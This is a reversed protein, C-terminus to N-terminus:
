MNGTSSTEGTVRSVSKHAWGMATLWRRAEERQIYVTARALGAHPRMARLEGAAIARHVSPRSWGLIACLDRVRIPPGDFTFLQTATIPAESYRPM